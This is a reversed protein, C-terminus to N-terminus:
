INCLAEVKIEIGSFFVLAVDDIFNRRLRLERVRIRNLRIQSHRDVILTTMIVTSEM